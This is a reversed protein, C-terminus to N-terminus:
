FNMSREKGGRKYVRYLRKMKKDRKGKRRGYSPEDYM